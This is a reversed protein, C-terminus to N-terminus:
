RNNGRFRPVEPLQGDILVVVEDLWRFNHLLNEELLGEVEDLSREGGGRDFMIEPDFDLYLVRDDRLVLSRVDTDGDIVPVAGLAVPGLLIEDVMARVAEYRGDSRPIAHWEYHRAGGATDPFILLRRELPQPLLLFFMLSVLLAFGLAAPFVVAWKPIM